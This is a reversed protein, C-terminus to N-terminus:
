GGKIVREVGALFDKVLKEEVPAIHVFEKTRGGGRKAHGKELLHTLQYKSKNHVTFRAPANRFSLTKVRWQKAYDGTREPSTEKLTKIAEEVVEMGVMDMGDIIERTYGELASAIEKSLDFTRVAGKGKYGKNAKYSAYSTYSPM